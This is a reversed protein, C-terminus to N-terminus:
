RFLRLLDEHDKIDRWMRLFRVPGIEELIKPLHIDRDDVYVVEHPKVEIGDERLRELLRRIMKAKDPHPEVQPYTFLGRLKFLDLLQFVPEPKNWSAISLIYGSDKLTRLVERVGKYLRVVEGESDVVEDENLLRFPLKLSSVDPHDWLTLDCDFVIM